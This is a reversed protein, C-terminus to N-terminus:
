QSLDYFNISKESPWTVAYEFPLERKAGPDLTFNWVINNTVKNQVVDGTSQLDKAAPAQLEVRIKDETSKPLVEVLTLQVPVSKTNHVKSCFRHTTTQTKTSWGSTDKHERALVQHELKIATDAGLFTTFEESPSVDKLSTTTIFSGDLFVSVRKSALLPYPSTNRAKVQLYFTSELTPTAFYLLKPAFQLLAIAVRHPKDDAEVTCQREIVFQATGGGGGTLTTTDVGAESLEEEEDSAVELADISLNRKLMVNSSACAQMPIAMRAEPARRARSQSHTSLRCVNTNYGADAQWRLMRRPPAPPMGAKSPQATSLTVRCSRWDEGSNNKVLGLYTLELEGERSTATDVRIDYSPSWSASSVMYTLMLRPPKLEGDKRSAELKFLVAVDRSVKSQSHVPAQLRKLASELVDIASQSATLAETLSQLQRDYEEGKKESFAFLKEVAELDLGTAPPKDQQPTLMGAVYRNLMGSRDRVRKQEAELTSHKRKLEALEARKKEAGGPDVSSDDVPGENTEVAVEMITIGTSGPEAKVRVSDADSKFTLGQVNLEFTGHDVVDSLKILRTVEARDNFVTVSTVDAEQVPLIIKRPDGGETM